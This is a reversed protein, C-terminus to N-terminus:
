DEGDTMDGYRKMYEETLYDAHGPIDAIYVHQRDENALAITYALYVESEKM